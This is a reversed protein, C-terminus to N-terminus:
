DNYKARLFAAYGEVATYGDAGIIETLKEKPDANERVFNWYMKEYAAQNKIRVYIEPFQLELDVSLLMCAAADFPNAAGSVRITEMTLLMHVDSLKDLHLYAALRHTEGLTKLPCSSSTDSSACAACAACMKMLAVAAEFSFPLPVFSTPERALDQLFLSQAILGDPVTWQEGRTCKFILM